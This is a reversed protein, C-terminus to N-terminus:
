IFWLQQCPAAYFATRVHAVSVNSEWVYASFSTNCNTHSQPGNSSFYTVTVDVTQVQGVSIIDSRLWYDPEQPSSVHCVVYRNKQRELINPYHWQSVFYVFMEIRCQFILSWITCSLKCTPHNYFTNRKGRKCLRSSAM